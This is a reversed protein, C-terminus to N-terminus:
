SGRLSPRASATHPAVDVYVRRRKSLLYIASAYSSYERDGDLRDITEMASLLVDLRALWTM